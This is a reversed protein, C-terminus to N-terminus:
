KLPTEETIPNTCAVIDLTLFLNRGFCGVSFFLVVSISWLEHRLTDLRRRANQVLQCVPTQM